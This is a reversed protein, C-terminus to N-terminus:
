EGALRSKIQTYPEQVYMFVHKNPNTFELETYTENKDKITRIQEINEFNILVKEGFRDTVEIFKM